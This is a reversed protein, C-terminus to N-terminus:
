SSIRLYIEKFDAAIKDWSFTNKVREQAKKGCRYVEDENIVLMEIQKVLDDYDNLKFTFGVNDITEVNEPIDSVLPAIGFGMAAVLAPSTGEVESATVYCYSNQSIEEYTKGYMRGLFITKESNLSHIYKVYDPNLPDDGILVLKYDNTKAGNFAKVLFDVNKEPRFIGVFLFYKKRTLNFSKLSDCEVRKIINAGFAVYDIDRRYKEYYYKCIVRSDSIISDAFKVAVRESTKILWSAASGWKRRKWDLADISIVCKKGFLKLLPIFIANGVTYLHIVKNESFLENIVSFFSASITSLNKTKISNVYKLKIGCYVELEKATFNKRCYVTLNVGQSALRVGTEHVCTEFGGYQAPIGKIGIVAVKLDNNM